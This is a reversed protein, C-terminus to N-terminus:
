RTPVLRKLEELWGQVLIMQAPPPPFEVLVFEQVHPPHPGQPALQTSSGCAVLSGTVFAFALAGRKM